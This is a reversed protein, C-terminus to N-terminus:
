SMMEMRIFISLITSASLFILSCRAASLMSRKMNGRQTLVSIHFPNPLAFILFCHNPRIFSSNEGNHGKATKGNITYEGNTTFLAVFDGHDDAKNSLEYYKQLFDVIAADKITAPLDPLEVGM